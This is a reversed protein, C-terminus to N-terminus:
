TMAEFAGTLSLREVVFGEAFDSRAAHGTTRAISVLLDVDIWGAPQVQSRHQEVLEAKADLFEGIDVYANANADRSSLGKYCLISRERRLASMTALSTTRHDQHSDNPDHVYVLSPAFEAAVKEILEIAPLTELAKDQFGGFTLSAGLLEASREAERRRLRCSEKGERFDDTMVVMHVDDNRKRHWLLAGGCGIEIDDPHAGISLVRM